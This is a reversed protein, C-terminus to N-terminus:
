LLGAPLTRHKEFKPFKLAQIRAAHGPNLNTTAGRPLSMGAAAEADFAESALELRKLSSRLIAARPRAASDDVTKTAQEGAPCSSSQAQSVEVVM